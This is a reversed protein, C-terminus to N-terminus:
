CGSSRRSSPKGWRCRSREATVWAAFVRQAEAADAVTLSLAFGGFAPSGSCRGDSMMVTSRGITLAAHMVKDGGGPPSGQQAEAPAENFRMLMQVEAGVAKQYCAIAEDCRGELFLYPQIQM